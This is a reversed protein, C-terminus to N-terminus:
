QSGNELSTCIVLYILCVYGRGIDIGSELLRSDGNEGLGDIHDLLFCPEFGDGTFM